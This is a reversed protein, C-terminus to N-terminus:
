GRAPFKGAFLQDLHYFATWNDGARDADLALRAHVMGTLLKSLATTRDDASSCPYFWGTAGTPDQMPALQHQYLSKLVLCVDWVHVYAQLGAVHQASRMELCFSSIPVDNFYKWAKILRSLAKAQGRRPIENCANVYQLHVKPASRIWGSGPSAGPIDYIFESGRTGKVFAPIVEWTEYGAAFEVTVAPRSIGIPTFRFRTKLVDRVRELVSYSPDPQYEANRPPPPLKPTTVRM